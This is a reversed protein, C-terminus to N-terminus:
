IKSKPDAPAAQRQGGAAAHWLGHLASLVGLGVIVWRFWWGNLVVFLVGFFAGFAVFLAAAIRHERRTPERFWEAEPPEPHAPIPKVPSSNYESKDM